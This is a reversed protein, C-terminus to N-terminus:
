NVKKRSNPFNPYRGGLAAARVALLSAPLSGEYKLHLFAHRSIVVSVNCSNCRISCLANIFPVYQFQDQVRLYAPHKRNKIKGEISRGARYPRDARKSVVGELGM